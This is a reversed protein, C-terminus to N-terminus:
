QYVRVLVDTPKFGNMPSLDNPCASVVVLCDMQAVLLVTDGRSALSERVELDGRGKIAVHMFFNVPDPLRDPEVEHKRATLARLFNDKCNPHDPVGYDDLYRQADCTPFLLDHRGVSDQILTLMKNHRNSYLAHDLRLMMSNNAERTHSPSLVEDFDNLNFAIVQVAQKGHMTGIQLFQHQKVEFASAQLPRVQSARRAVRGHLPNPPSDSTTTTTTTTTATTKTPTSM